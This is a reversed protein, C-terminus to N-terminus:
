VLLANYAINLWSITYINKLKLQYISFYYLLHQIIFRTHEKLIMSRYLYMYLLNLLRRNVQLKQVILVFDWNDLVLLVRKKEIIKGHIKVLSLFKHILLIPFPFSVDPGQINLVRNLPQHLEMSKSNDIKICSLYQYYNSIYISM